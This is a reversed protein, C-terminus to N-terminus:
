WSGAGGGGGGGGSSFGGGGGGFASGGSGFGTDSSFAPAAAAVSGLVSSDLQNLQWGLSSLSWSPGYYWTPVIAPIRGLEVLRECVKTWRETLEFMVAWPLYKSFIDEGEEFRLQEAEATALYLRFGEIQDTLARGV